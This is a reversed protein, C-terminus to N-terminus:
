KETLVVWQNDFKHIQWQRPIKKIFDAVDDKYIIVAMPKVTKAAKYTSFPMVNKESWSYAKPIYESVNKEDILTAIERESYFVASTPYRGASVIYTDAPVTNKLYLAATYASRLNLLPKCIVQAAAVNFFFGAIAIVTITKVWDNGRKWTAVCGVFYIIFCAASLFFIEQINNVLDPRNGKIWQSAVTLIGFFLLNYVLVGKIALREKQETFYAAV